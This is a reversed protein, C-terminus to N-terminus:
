ASGTEDAFTWFRNGLFNWLLVLGTATVQALLYHVGGVSILTWMIAANLMLGVSAITVFKSLTEGHRRRSRFVWHHSLLYNAAAGALFGLISASVPHISLSEVLMFLLAYQVVTGIAGASAFAVFQVWLRKDLRASEQPMYGM